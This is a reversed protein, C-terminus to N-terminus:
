HPLALIPNCDASGIRAPNFLLSMLPLVSAASYMPRKGRTAPKSCVCRVRATNIPLDPGVLSKVGRDFGIPSLALTLTCLPCQPTCLSSPSLPYFLTLLSDACAFVYLTFLFNLFYLSLFPSHSVNAAFYFLYVLLGRICGSSQCGLLLCTRNGVGAVLM